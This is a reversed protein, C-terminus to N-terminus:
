AMPKVSALTLKTRSCKCTCAVLRRHRTAYRTSLHSSTTVITFDFHRTKVVLWFQTALICLVLRRGAHLAKRSNIAIRIPQLPVVRMLIFCKATWQPRLSATTLRRRWLQFHVIQSVPNYTNSYVGKIPQVLSIAHRTGAQKEILLCLGVQSCRCLSSEFLLWDYHSQYSPTLFHM